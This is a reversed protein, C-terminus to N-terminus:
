CKIGEDIKKFNFTQGKQSQIIAPFAKFHQAMEVPCLYEPMFALYKEPIEFYTRVADNVMEILEYFTDAETFCGPFTIIEACFKGREFRRVKVTVCSPFLGLFENIEKKEKSTLKKMKNM